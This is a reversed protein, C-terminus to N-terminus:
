LIINAEAIKGNFGVSELMAYARNTLLTDMVNLALFLLLWFITRSQLNDSKAELRIRTLLARISELRSSSESKFQLEM